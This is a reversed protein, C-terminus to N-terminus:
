AIREGSPQNFDPTMNKYHFYFGALVGKYKEKWPKQAGNFHVIVANREIWGSYLEIGANKVTKEDLNYVRPDVGITRDWFMGNIVDQDALYLKKINKSIYDFIMGTTVTKKMLTINMMMVGANIYRSGKGMKLRKHNLREIFGKTHGAGALLNDGFDVNYLKDLPNIVVTDPDIYLIRDVEDPLYDMVLLRFYTEKSTRKLVPANAFMSDDLKKKHITTRSKDIVKDIADFDDDTLKAHAVYIDFATNPNSVMLSRLMVTLHPIYNSDLTVLINM